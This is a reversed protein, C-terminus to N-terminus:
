DNIIITISGINGFGHWGAPFLMLLINFSYFQFYSGEANKAPIAALQTNRAMEKIFREFFYFTFFYNGLQCLEEYGCCDACLFTTKHFEDDEPM